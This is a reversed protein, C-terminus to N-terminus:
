NNVDLCRVMATAKIVVHRSYGSMEAGEPLNSMMVDMFDSDGDAKKKLHEELWNGLVADLEKATRKMASVHGKAPYDM